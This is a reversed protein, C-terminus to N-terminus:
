IPLPACDDLPKGLVVTVVLRALEEPDADVDEVLLGLKGTGVVVVGAVTM